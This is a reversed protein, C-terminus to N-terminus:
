SLPKIWGISKKPSPGRTGSTTTDSQVDRMAIGVMNRDQFEDLAVPAELRQASATTVIKGIRNPVFVIGIHRHVAWRDAIQEDHEIERVIVVMAILGCARLLRTPARVLRRGDVIDM